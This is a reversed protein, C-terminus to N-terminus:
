AKNDYYINTIYEKPVDEFIIVTNEPSMYELSTSEELFRERTLDKFKIPDLKKFISIRYDVWSNIDKHKKYIYYEPDGFSKKMKDFIDKPISFEIIAEKGVRLPKVLKHRDLVFYLFDKDNIGMLLNDQRTKYYKIKLGERKISPINIIKTVHYLKVDDKNKLSSYLKRKIIM